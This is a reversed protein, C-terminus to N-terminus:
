RSRRPGARGPGRRARRRARSPAAGGAGGTRRAAAARAAPRHPGRRGAGAGLLQDVLHSARAQSAAIHQLQERWVAPSQQALGYDALARIGALPTRLEHAVNGAFERQARVSHGLRELLANLTEGLRELERSSRAVPVPALDHADRQDLTRRLEGLPRLERKSAAGCGCPWCRWCCSSAAGAFLAAAARGARHARAHDARDRRPLGQTRRPEAGGRAAGARTASTPFAIAHARRPCRRRCAPIARSCRATPGCCRSTSRKPSTSAARQQGRAAVAAARHRARRGRRQGVGCLCRRALARDFAQETFYGAVAVAVATGVLWTLALPLLVRRLVRATLSPAGAAARRAAFRVGDAELLYGIGRLTRIAAGSGALKKRLRSIFAELANDGLAEDFSSLKDSMARKSVTRGPPSM